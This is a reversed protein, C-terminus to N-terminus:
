LCCFREWKYDVLMNGYYSSPLRETGYYNGEVVNFNAAGLIKDTLERDVICSVDLAYRGPLLALRDITCVFKGGNDLTTHPQRFIDSPLGFLRQGQSNSIVANLVVNKKRGFAVDYRYNFALRLTEGTRAYELPEGNQDELRIGTFQFIGSGDRDTRESLDGGSAATHTMQYYQTIIDGTDGLSSMRGGDLLMSRPCLNAIASMNHSVFLVTRGEEQTIRNMKKLCREQFEVDGVALVEDIFLIDTDLHAAVSFALRLRMGSSYHKVPADIFREVGSFAVIEDFKRRVEQPTMGLLTGNMYVNERGSLEDHFGTGVELLSAVRGRIEARGATPETIRSLVKLLTSKGAGNRGIIGVVDGPEIEFSLDKLAWIESGRPDPAKAGPRVLRRLAGLTIRPSPRNLVYRKGLGEVRIAAATM